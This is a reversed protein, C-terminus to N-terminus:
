PLSAVGPKAVMLAIAGLGAAAMVFAEPSEMALLFAGSTVCWLLPILALHWHRGHTSCLLVGLTAVATPDPAVGFVEVQYWRRGSAMGVLPQAVLAFLFLLMGLRAARSRGPAFALRARVVGTFVLLLAELGFAAAFYVAAWNITAYREYMFAGAVWAWCVALLAAAERGRAPKGGGLMALLIAVGAALGVAQGPWIDRNYLEFLRRYTTPTFLLFDSLTYTWWESM